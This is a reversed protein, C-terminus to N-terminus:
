DMPSFTLIQEQFDVAEIRIGLLLQTLPKHPETADNGIDVPIVSLIEQQIKRM